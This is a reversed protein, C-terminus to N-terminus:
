NTLEFYVRWLPQEDLLFDLRYIGPRLGAANITWTVFTVKDKRLKLQTPKTKGVLNNDLDYFHLVAMQNGSVKEQPRITAQFHFSGLRRSFRTDTDIPHLFSGIKELKRSLTASLIHTTRRLLPIFQGNAQMQQLTTAKREASSKPLVEIPVALPPAIGPQANRIGMGLLDGSTSPTLRGGLMGVVKGFEDVLPAGLAQWTPAFTLNLQPGSTPHNQEGVLNGSIITRMGETPANLSYYFDGIRRAPKEQQPLIAPAKVPVKLVAWDQRRSWGLIEQVEASQGDPRVVRLRHAGDIVQFATVVESEGLYFGSGTSVRNGDADFREIFLTADKLREYIEAPALPQPQPDPIPPPESSSIIQFIHSGAYEGDIRAELTWLGTPTTESLLLTWYGAFHPQKAEYEFDSIVAVKGEPNKWIGEFRHKGVPGQWEFYVIVQRDHPIHFVTRPDHLIYRGEKQEGRSGSVARLIRFKPEAPRVAAAAAQEQGPPIAPPQQGSSEGAAVLALLVSARLVTWARRNPDGSQM